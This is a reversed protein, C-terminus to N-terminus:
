VLNVRRPFFAVSLQGAELLLSDGPSRRANGSLETDRSQLVPQIEISVKATRRTKRKQRQRGIQLSLHLQQHRIHPILTRLRWLWRRGGSRREAPSYKIAPTM